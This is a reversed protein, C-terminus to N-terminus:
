LQAFSIAKGEWLDIYCKRIGHFTVLLSFVEQNTDVQNRHSKHRLLLTKSDLEPPCGSPTTQPYRLGM